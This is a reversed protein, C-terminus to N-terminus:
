DGRLSGASCTVEHPDSKRDSGVVTAVPRFYSRPAISLNIPSCMPTRNVFTSTKIFFHYLDTDHKNRKAILNVEAYADIDTDGWGRASSLGMEGEVSKGGGGNGVTGGGAVGTGAECGTEIRRLEGDVVGGATRFTVLGPEGLRAVGGLEGSVPLFPVAGGCGFRSLLWVSGRPWPPDGRFFECLGDGRGDASCFVVDFSVLVAGRALMTFSSAVIGVADDDM